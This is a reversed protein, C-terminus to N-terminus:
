PNEPTATPQPPNLHARVADLVAVQAPGFEDPTALTHDGNLIRRLATALPAWDPDTAMEDLVPGIIGQAHTDGTAAAAVAAAFLAVGDAHDGQDDTGTDTTPTRWADPDITTTGALLDLARRTIETDVPDLGDILTLEREGAHIRRLVAVLGQWKPQQELTTLAYNLIHTAADRTAPDSHSIAAHLASLVPEWGALLQRTHEAGAESALHLVEDMAAQGDPARQPLRALLDALHVGDIQDVIQCVQSFEGPAAVPEAALLGGLPQLWTTLHGSGTQYVIVAAALCHAWIRQPDGGSRQLYGALNNHSVGVESDAALYKFRLADTELDIARDAHGLTAEVDALSSLTKGLMLINNNAEFVARCWILLDRAEVPRGLRLLPFYDNFAAFAQEADSAGRRRMSDLTAANLDLAQQWRGLRNAALVGTNLTSERVSFPVITSDHPGPPDPLVAMQDRLEEVTDLVQQYHGQFHLIQLRTTQHLLQTWPGYGARRTYEAMTDVLTLAEDFRGSDRYFHILDGTLNKATGFQERTVATDLLQRFLTEAQDPNLIMLARAHIGGVALEQDTGRTAERAAALMPLLAAATATSTDRHQVQETAAALEPWRHQRLLYPGASRAARLVLWGLEQEQEQQLAHWLNALWYDGLATDVAAPLDPTTTTRGAEAVGPHIRLRVVQGTDPNAETSVLAQEVLPVLATELDPPDGPRDLRQWLDAWVAQIIHHERDDEEVCCLFGFLTAADEPLAQTSSRTWGQLVTLYDRDTGAPEDGRLFPELRTGRTLWTRDAEALRATLTAPDRAHGNALEILKPHGQVVALTRAALDRAQAPTLGPPLTTADILARLHPWDRALLVAEPLSLAHVAEVVMAPNLQAPRRRSTLVLRSLGQHNGIADILLAWREDRWTGPGDVDGPRDTLLSEINDLVILVRNQELVETLGPLRERLATVDSLLHALQLGPLQRELALVFDSLATTIDAGEPPAAHWAMLPFSERHTYALELACATKGGGAMGHLLVGVRGSRPALATTARTMPGVRGVFREPQPPFEALKQRETQVEVPGGDPPVLTLEGARLGFLAPTAISLAPAGATPPEPAVRPLSLALARTVPQGKGLVLYYFSGALAIVFDDVVPYRMALVACDLRAVLEAAVAPL